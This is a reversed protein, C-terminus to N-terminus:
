QVNGLLPSLSWPDEHQRGARLKIPNLEGGSLNDAMRFEFIGHPIQRWSLFPFDPYGLSVFTRMLDGILDM